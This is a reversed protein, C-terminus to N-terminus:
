ADKYYLTANFEMVLQTSGSDPTKNMLDCYGLAMYPAFNTPYSLSDGQDYQLVAPLQKQTLVIRFPHFMSRDMGTIANTSSPTSNNTFGFPKQVVFKKDHFFTFQENNHPSVWNLATGTFNNGTGGLNLLNFNYISNAYSRTTKDQFCFLRAGLMRADQNSTLSDTYYAVYGTIELRIPRVKNGIRDNQGTGVAITPLVTILDANATVGSNFATLGYQNSSMKTEENRRIARNVYTRVPASIKTSKKRYLKRKSFGRRKVNRRKLYPM